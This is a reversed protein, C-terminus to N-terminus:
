QNLTISATIRKDVLTSFRNDFTLIYKGPQLPVDIGGRTVKDSQYLVRQPRGDNWKKFDDDNAIAAEIDNTDGGTAEFRGFVRGAKYVSFPFSTISGARVTFVSPTLAEQKVSVRSNLRFVAFAIVCLLVPGALNKLARSNKEGEAPMTPL